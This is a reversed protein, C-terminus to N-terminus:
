KATCDRDCHETGALLCIGDPQMGCEDCTCGDEPTKGCVDCAADGKDMYDFTHADYDYGEGDRIM